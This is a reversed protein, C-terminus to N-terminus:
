HLLSHALVIIRFFGFGSGAFKVEERLGFALGDVAVTSLGADRVGNEGGEAFGVSVGDGFFVNEGVNVADEVARFVAFAEGGVELFHEGADREGRFGGVVLGEGLGSAVEGFEVEVVLGDRGMGVDGDLAVFEGEFGEFEVADFLHGVGAGGRLLFGVAVAEVFRADDVVGVDGEGVDGLAGLVVDDVALGGEVPEEVAVLDLDVFGTADFVVGVVPAAFV